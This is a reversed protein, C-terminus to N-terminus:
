GSPHLFNLVEKSIGHISAIEVSLSVCTDIFADLESLSTSNIELSPLAFDASLIENVDM